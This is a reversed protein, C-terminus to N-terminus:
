VEEETRSEERIEGIRGAPYTTSSNIGDTGVLSKALTGRVWKEEGEIVIVRTVKIRKM